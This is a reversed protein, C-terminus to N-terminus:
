HILAGVLHCFHQFGSIVTWPLYDVVAWLFLIWRHPHLEWRRMLHLTNHSDQSSLQPQHLAHRSLAARHPPWLFECTWIGPHHNLVFSPDLHCMLLTSIRAFLALWRVTNNKKAAMLATLRIETGYFPAIKNWLTMVSASHYLMIFPQRATCVIIQSLLPSLPSDAQQQWPSRWLSADRHWGSHSCSPWQAGSRDPARLSHPPLGACLATIIVQAYFFLHFVM